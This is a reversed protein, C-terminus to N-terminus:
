GAVQYLLHPAPLEGSTEWCEWKARQSNCLALICSGQSLVGRHSLQHASCTHLISQVSLLLVFRIPNPYELRCNEVRRSGGAVATNDRVRDEEVGLIMHQCHVKCALWAWGVCGAGLQSRMQPHCRHGKLLARPPCGVSHAVLASSPPKPLPKREYPLM